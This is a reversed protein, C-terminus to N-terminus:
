ADRADEFAHLWLERDGGCLVVGELLRREWEPLLFYNEILTRLADLDFGGDASARKIVGVRQRAIATTPTM